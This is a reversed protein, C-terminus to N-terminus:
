VKKEYVMDIPTKDKPERLDYIVGDLVAFVHSPISVVFRGKQLDPLITELRKCSLEPRAELGLKDAFKGYYCGQRPKRGHKTLLAHADAYPIDLVVATARVTCDRRERPDFGKRGADTYHIKKM